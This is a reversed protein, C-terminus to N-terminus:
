QLLSDLKGGAALRPALKGMQKMMKRMEKFQKLLRNVEHVPRGSGKAVRARRSGNMIEPKRREAPTMSLIIAEMHKIRRPDVDVGELMQPKVGPIMKLLGEIPGMKQIQKTAQLFDELDFQGGGLVKKELAEGAEIDFTQQAKEVLGVIDGMQLIRGAMREPEFATLDELREGVGVFKVPVGLVGHISLAAGGRADGDMKTLIVGTIGVTEHFGEAIRVAEQGTMGDAVLLVEQPAIEAKLRRLEDMLEADAQLRGATDIIVHTSGARRAGDVAGAALAVVDKQDPEHVVPVDISEALTVLQEGAAPRYPDCAVLTPRRGNRDFRRALKGASTTKGSGQLGVLMIVTPPVAAEALASEASAGGLVEVLEDHVIKVVQEAPRVAELVKEGLAREEVRKLFDRAVHFNVDAELLARRVERLGERLMPQTIVGRGKLRRFVGDLREGLQEFM